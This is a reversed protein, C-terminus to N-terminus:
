LGGLTLTSKGKPLDFCAVVHSKERVWGGSKLQGVKKVPSLTAPRGASTLVPQAGKAAPVRVTFDPCAFPATFTVRDGNRVVRTLEKAAWYRAIDTLKMWRLHDYRAHMRRVAEQFIKFGIEEGNFYIGTWHCLMIAPEGREIVDVMRGSKLDASIFRDVGVPESCDWGGTWDGTCAIISVVCKPDRSELGSAYEVRPAVSKEGDAIVFRFYHPIESRYVDRVSELTAQALQPVVRSAFGGPTTIGDCHLGANKLIKLAYALYDALEDVSKGDTWSWNEMFEPGRQPYPHGTKTDIVRTHTIMEPHIDWNPMMLERVLKLSNALERSTWGPLERDVRGVCAPYPVISYKGKVGQEGCWNGFKRVFDDPIEDPWKRWPQTKYRDYNWAAAFQPVAFKNLNVLCTSDDIIFSLPVRMRPNLVEVTKDRIPREGAIQAPLQSAGFGLGAAALGGATSMLFDRRNLQQM